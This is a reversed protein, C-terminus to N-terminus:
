ATRLSLGRRLTGEARIEGELTLHQVANVRSNGCIGRLDKGKKKKSTMIREAQSRDVFSVAIQYPSMSIGNGYPLGFSHRLSVGRERRRYDQARMSDTM